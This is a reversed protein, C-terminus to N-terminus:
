VVGADVAVRRFWAALDRQSTHANLGSPNPLVWTVSEGVGSTQRGFAAKPTDFAVRYASVGAVAVHPWGWLELKKTLAAGGRRLEDAALESAKVTARPVLNTIAIGSDTLAKRDPDTLGNVRDFLAATLGAEYLAPYFRNSPHAFHTQTKVTWLGPNIGVFVLKIETGVLDPVTGDRFADLEARSM